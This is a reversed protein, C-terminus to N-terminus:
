RWPRTWSRRCSLCPSIFAIPKGDDDIDLGQVYYENAKLTLTGYVPLMIPKNDGTRGTAEIVTGSKDSPGIIYDLTEDAPEPVKSYQYTKVGSYGAYKLRDNLRKCGVSMMVAILVLIMTKM